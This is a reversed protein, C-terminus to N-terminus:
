PEVQPRRVVSLGLFLALTGLAAAATALILSGAIWPAVDAGSLHALETPTEVGEPLGMALRGIVLSAYLIFPIVLPFSVNSALVAIPQSLRLASASFLALMTQFGWVPALGWFLGLGLSGAIRANSGQEQVFLKLFTDRWRAAFGQEHFRRTCRLRLYPAPLCIKQTCFRTNLRAIRAYDIGKMHSVREEPTFYKVDIPLSRLEVGSWAGRVLVEIEFDFKTCDFALEALPAVPYCRFGTQTDPLWTGTLVWTWFNSNVCGFRSGPGAGAARLDRVGLVIANPHERAAEILRPVDHPLHQGDSDMSVAHTFGRRHAEDLGTRLAAGKGRNVDHTVVHLGDIGALIAKTEPGSGDDVVIV